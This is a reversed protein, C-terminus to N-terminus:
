ISYLNSRDAVDHRFLLWLLVAGDTDFRAFAAVYPAREEGFMEGNGSCVLSAFCSVLDTVAHLVAAEMNINKTTKKLTVMEGGGVVAKEGLEGFGEAGESARGGGGDAAVLSGYKDVGGGGGAELSIAGSSRSSGSIDLSASSSTNIGHVLPAREAGGVGLPLLLSLLLPHCYIIMLSRM